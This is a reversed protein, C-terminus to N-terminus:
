GIVQSEFREGGRRKADYMLADAEVFLEELNEPPSRWTVLGVTISVQNDADAADLEHQIRRTVAAAEDQDTDPLLLVFEDGGVRALLDTPRLIAESSRALRVLAADGAAHGLRDNLEKLGDVDLFAVSLVGRGRQLRALEIGGRERCVRRNALGTLPDFRAETQERELAVRLRWLLLCVGVLFTLATAANWMAVGIHVSNALGDTAVAAASVAAGILGARRGGIWTMFAVGSVYVISLSLDRGTAVDAAFGALIVILGIAVAGPEGLGRGPRELTLAM